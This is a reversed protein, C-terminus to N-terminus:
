DDEYNGSNAQAHCALCNSKTIVKSDKWVRDPFNHERLFAPNETIKMPVGDAAVWRMYKRAIGQRKVDGANDALYARIAAAQDEPLSADDGFHDSLTDMIKQWSRKPLFAPQFAMHCSGCEKQALKDTVPPAWDDASASASAIIALLAALILSYRM